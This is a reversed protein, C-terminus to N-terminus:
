HTLGSHPGKLEKKPFLISLTSINEHREITMEGDIQTLLVEILEKRLGRESEKGNNYNLVSHSPDKLQILVKDELDNLILSLGSSRQENKGIQNLEEICNLLENLLMGMPIAQNVNLIVEDLMYNTIQKHGENNSLKRESKIVGEIYTNFCVHSLSENQYLIEHIAAITYIRSQTSFLRKNVEKDGTNMMELELLGSIIALNNKVRHHVENLLTEKEALSREITNRAEVQETVDIAQVFIGYIENRDDHLPKYVFNLFRTDPAASNGRNFFVKRENFFIPKGDKFCTDLLETYGQERLEPLVEDVTKHMLDQHGVLDKYTKNVFSYTHEEGQLMAIASPAEEFMDQMHIRAKKETELLEVIQNELHKRESIDVYMGYIAIVEDDMEVPVGGVLVPIEKGNKHIRITETQFSDGTFSLKSLTEAHEDMFNPVITENLSGGKIDQEAYGFIKEFSPNASQVNGGNDVLVIGIPSNHFLQTLLTQNRKITIEAKKRDTIDMHSGAIKTPEGQEDWEMYKAIALIWRYEGTQTRLRFEAEYSDQHISYRKLENIPIDVDEPHLLSDFFDRTYEIEDESYGLMTFWRENYYAEGTNLDLEWLGLNAGSVALENFVKIRELEKNVLEKENQLQKFDSRNLGGGVIYFESDQHFSSGRILYHIVKGHKSICRADVSVKSGLLDGNLIEYLQQQDEPHVFDMVNKQAIEEHTYGLDQELINNWRIMTGQINFVFFATPLSSIAKETFEKEHILQQQFSKRKSIDKVSVITKEKGNEATFIVSSIEVPLDTGDKHTFIVEGTFTSQKKRTELAITNTPKSEDFVIERHLGELEHAEYGLMACIAPNVEIILGDPSGIITGELTHKFQMKYQQEKVKLVEQINKKDSIDKFAWSTVPEGNENRFLTVSIEVPLSKGNKKTLTQEGLYNGYRNIRKQLDQLDFQKHIFQSADSFIIEERSAGLLRCATNNVEIIQNNKNSVLIGYFNNNFHKEFKHRTEKLYKRSQTQLSIDEYILVAGKDFGLSRAIVKYWKNQGNTKILQKTEFSQIEHALIDKIGLLLRLAFDNGEALPAQLSQLINANLSPRSWREQLEDIFVKWEKNFAVVDGNPDIIAIQASLANLIVSSMEDLEITSYINLDNKM